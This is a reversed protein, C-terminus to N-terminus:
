RGRSRTPLPKVYAQRDTQSIIKLSVEGISRVKTYWFTVVIHLDIKLLLTMPDLDLWLLLIMRIQQHYTQYKNYEKTVTIQELELDYPKM